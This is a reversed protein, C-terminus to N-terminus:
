SFIKFSVEINKEIVKKVSDYETEVAKHKTQIQQLELDMLKDQNALIAAQSEYEAQAAADDSTDYEDYITNISSYSTTAYQNLGNEDATLQQIFLSGDRLSDQFFKNNDLLTAQDKNNNYYTLNCNNALFNQYAKYAESTTNNTAAATPDAETNGKTGPVKAQEKKIDEATLDIGSLCKFVNLADAQNRVVYKGYKDNVLYAGTNGNEARLQAYSLDVRTQASSGFIGFTLKRNNMARSFREALAQTKTSLALKRQNIMQARYELDSKQATLLLLRAQSSALGM